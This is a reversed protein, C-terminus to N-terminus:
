WDFSWYDETFNLSSKSLRKIKQLVWVYHDDLLVSLRYILRGKRDYGIEDYEYGVIHTTDLCENKEFGLAHHRLMGFRCSWPIAGGCICFPYRYVKVM